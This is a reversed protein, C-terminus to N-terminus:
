RGTRQALTIEAEVSNVTAAGTITTLIKQSRKSYPTNQKKTKKLKKRTTEKTM